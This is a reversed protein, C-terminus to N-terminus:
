IVIVSYYLAIWPCCRWVKHALSDFTKKNNNNTIIILHLSTKSLFNFFSFCRTETISFPTSQTLQFYYWNLIISNFGKQKEWWCNMPKSIASPEILEKDTWKVEQMRTIIISLGSTMCDVLMHTHALSTRRRKERWDSRVLHIRGNSLTSEVEETASSVRITKLAM